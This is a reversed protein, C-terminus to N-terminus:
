PGDRRRRGRHERDAAAGPVRGSRGATRVDQALEAPGGRRGHGGTVVLGKAGLAAAGTAHQLVTKRSPIRIRNNLSAVNVPYPSHIFVENDSSLIEETYPYPPPPKWSQPDALFFQVVDAGRERAAPLPDDQHIHAGIQM